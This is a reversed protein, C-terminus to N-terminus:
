LTERKGKATQEPGKQEVHVNLTALDPRQRLLDIVRETVVIQNEDGFERCIATLLNWDDLTDLTLRYASNDKAGAYNRIAFREPHQYIFPTVHEREHPKVAERCAAELADKSLIEVDLGRPFTRVLTNSLYDVREGRKRRAIFEELMKTLVDSDLFPCDSTVRVVVDADFRRAAECYRELVNDESGRYVKAGCRESETVVPDDREKKTTAVVVASM